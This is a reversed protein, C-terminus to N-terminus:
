ELGDDLAKKITPFEKFVIDRIAEAMQRHELQTDPQCRVTIYHVWSRLTGNVYLKSPVLGEPLIARAVEKAIGRKLAEKYVWECISAIRYQQKWWWFDLAKDENSLSNQRNKTDQLRTERPNTLREYAAYRGSFEQFHLSRHRILQRGIDRTCTVEVCVNVMELPSWHNNRILYRILKESPDELTAKPNSVRALYAVLAEGNPTAWILNATPKEQWREDTL